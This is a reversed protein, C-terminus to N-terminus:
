PLQFKFAPVGIGAPQGVCSRSWDNRAAHVPGAPACRAPQWSLCAKRHQWTVFDLSYRLLHVICTQVTAQPFVTTIEARDGGPALFKAGKTQEIWLGLVDKTGDPAIGPGPVRGEGARHGRRPDAGGARRLRDGPLAPALASGVRHGGGAGCRDGHEDPGPLCRGRPARGLARRCRACPSGGPTSRWSRPM